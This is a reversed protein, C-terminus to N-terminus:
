QSRGRIARDVARIIKQLQADTVGFFRYARQLFEARETATNRNPSLPRPPRGVLPDFEITGEVGRRAIFATKVRAAKHLAGSAKLDIKGTQLGAQRRRRKYSESRYSGIAQGDFRKGSAWLRRLEKVQADLGKKLGQRGRQRLGDAINDLRLNFRAEVGM